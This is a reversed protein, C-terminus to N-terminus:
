KIRNIGVFFLIFKKISFYDGYVLATLIAPDFNDIDDKEQEQIKEWLDDYLLIQRALKSLTQNYMPKNNITKLLFLFLLFSHILKKNIM